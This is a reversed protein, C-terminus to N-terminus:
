GRPPHFVAVRRISSRPAPENIIRGISSGDHVIALAPIAGWQEAREPLPNATSVPLPNQSSCSMGSCPAHRREPASQGPVPSGAVLEDLRAANLMTDSQSGVLHNCGAWASRACFGQLVLLLFAGTGWQALRRDFASKM